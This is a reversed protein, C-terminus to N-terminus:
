RVALAARRSVWWCGQDGKPAQTFDPNGAKLKM